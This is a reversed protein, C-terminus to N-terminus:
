QTEWKIQYDGGQVYNVVNTISIGNDCLSDPKFTGTPRDFIEFTECKIKKSGDLQAGLIIRLKDTGRERIVIRYSGDEQKRLSLIEDFKIKEPATGGQDTSREYFRAANTIEIKPNRKVEISYFQGALASTQTVLLSREPYAVAAAFDLHGGWVKGFYSPAWYATAILRAKADGPTLREGERDVLIAAAAAVQPAAQSTGTAPGYKKQDTASYIDQGPAILDVYKKGRNVGSFTGDPTSHQELIMGDLSSATVTIVNPAWGWRAPAPVSAEDMEDLNEGDNGAAVVWLARGEDLMTERLLDNAGSWTQSVNFVRVNENIAKVIERHVRSEDSLDILNLRASPLLGRWCDGKRGAILGSVHTGHHADVSYEESDLAVQVDSQYSTPQPSPVLESLVDYSHWTPHDKDLEFIQHRELVTNKNELIGVRVQKTALEPWILKGADDIPYRVAKLWAANKKQLESCHDASSEDGGPDDPPMSHAQQTEFGTRSQLSSGEYMTAISWLESRGDAFEGTPVALTVLWQEVPLVVTGRSVGYIESDDYKALGRNIRKIFAPSIKSRYDNSIVLESLYDGIPRSLQVYKRGLQREIRVDPISLVQDQEVSALAGNCFDANLACVLTDTTRQSRMASKDARQARPDSKMVQTKSVQYAMKQQDQVYRVKPANYQPPVILAGQDFLFQEVSQYPNRARVERTPLIDHRLLYLYMSTLTNQSSIADGELVLDVPEARPVLELGLEDLLYMGTETIAIDRIGYYLSHRSNVPVLKEESEIYAYVHGRDALYVVGEYVSMAQWESNESPRVVSASEPRFRFQGDKLRNFNITVLANRAKDLVHLTDWTSFALGAPREFTSIEYYVPEADHQLFILQGSDIVAAVGHPSVAMYTPNDLEVPFSKPRAGAPDWLDLSWIRRSGADFFYLNDYSIALGRPEFTGASWDELSAWLQVDKVLRSTEVPPRTEYLYIEGYQDAVFVGDRDTAAAIASYRGFQGKGEVTQAVVLRPADIREADIHGELEIRGEQASAPIAITIFSVLFVAIRISRRHCM